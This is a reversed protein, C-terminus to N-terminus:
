NFTSDFELIEDLEDAAGSLTWTDIQDDNELRDLIDIAFEIKEEFTLDRKSTKSPGWDVFRLLKERQEMLNFFSEIFQDQVEDPIDSFSAVASERESQHPVGSDNSASIYVHVIPDDEINDLVISSGLDLKYTETFGAGTDTQRNVVIRGGSPWVERETM